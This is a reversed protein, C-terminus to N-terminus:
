QTVADRLDGVSSPMHTTISNDTSAIQYAQPSNGDETRWEEVFPDGVTECLNHLTVCIAVINRLKGDLRKSM